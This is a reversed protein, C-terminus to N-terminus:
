LRGARAAPLLVSSDRGGPLHLRNVRARILVSPLTLSTVLSGLFAGDQPGTHSIM